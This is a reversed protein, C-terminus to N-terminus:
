ARLADITVALRLHLQDHASEFSLGTIEAIQRLRYFVTHRHVYLRESAIKVNEGCAFYTTMTRELETQHRTDYDRIPQLYAQSFAVWRPDDAEEFLLPYAGLAEYPM